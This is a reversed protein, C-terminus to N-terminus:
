CNRRNLFSKILSRYRKMDRIDHRKSIRDGQETIQEMMSTLAERLDAAEIRSALTFKFTGDAPVETNEQLQQTEQVQVLQQVRFDM